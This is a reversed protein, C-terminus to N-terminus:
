AGPMRRQPWRQDLAIRNRGGMKAEYLARDARSYIQGASKGQRAETIGASFTYSLPKGPGFPQSRRVASMMREVILEAESLGTEPLLLMFEEGGIRGFCDSRRVLAHIQRAFDRLVIDGGPHGFRDNISKFHDIDLICVCGPAAPDAPARQLLDELRQTVFRRNAIGTLEDTHAARLARDRDQRIKGEDTRLSSIDSAICLMWGDPQVTETMLLWRGDQLDTEFSRFPTKGRRSQAATVWGDIDDTDIVVGCRQAHNRRVIEAWTPEEDPEIGIALRFAANAYRLRDFGDYLAILVDTRDALVQLHRAVDTM